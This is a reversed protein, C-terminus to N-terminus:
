CAVLDRPCAPVHARPRDRLLLCVCGSLAPNPGALRPVEVHLITHQRLHQGVREVDDDDGPGDGRKVAVAPELAVDGVEYAMHQVLPGAHCEDRPSRRIAIGQHRCGKWRTGYQVNGPAPRRPVVTMSRLEAYGHNPQRAPWSAASSTRRPPM